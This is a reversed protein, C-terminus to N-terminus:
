RRKDFHEWGVKQPIIPNGNKDLVTVNGPSESIIEGIVTISVSLHQKAAEIIEEHATFLLEYDEGGSLALFLAEEPFCNEVNPHIPINEAFVRAGVQSSQCIHTLDAILGDSIDIASKVGCQVLIKGENIRPFPRRHANKLNSEAESDLHIEGQLLKLGAASAGLNGTVAILDGPKAGSRTMLQDKETRGTVTPSIILVPAETTDGGIISLGFERAIEAMGRYLETAQEVETEPLLGLSILAHVPTGGMAAIDSLNVALSKWGLDHWSTTNPSFHIGEILMDTTVLQVSEDCRWAAADDGIGLMLGSNAAPEAVIRHMIDILGFEGLESVKM